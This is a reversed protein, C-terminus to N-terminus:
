SDYAVYVCYFFRKYLATTDKQGFPICLLLGQFGFLSLALVNLVQCNLFLM